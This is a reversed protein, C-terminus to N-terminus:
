FLNLVILRVGVYMPLLVVILCLSIALGVIALAKEFDILYVAEVARVILYLSWLIGIVCIGPLVLLGWGGLKVSMLAVPTLVLFPLATFGLICLLGRVNGATEGLADILGHLFCGFIGMSLIKVLLVGVLIGIRVPLTQQSFVVNTCVGVFAGVSIVFYFLSRWLTPHQAIEAMGAKTEFLVNYSKRRM